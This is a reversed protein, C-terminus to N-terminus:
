STLFKSNPLSKMHSRINYTRNNRDWISSSVKFWYLLSENRILQQQLPNYPNQSSILNKLTESLLRFIPTKEPKEFSEFVSFHSIAYFYIFILYFIFFFNQSIYPIIMSILFTSQKRQIQSNRM